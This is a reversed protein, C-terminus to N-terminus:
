NKDRDSNYSRGQGNEIRRLAYKFNWAMLSVSNEVKQNLSEHLAQLQYTEQKATISIDKVKKSQNSPSKMEEAKLIGVLQSFNMEANNM